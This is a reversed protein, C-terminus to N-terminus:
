VRSPDQLRFDHFFNPWDPRYPEFGHQGNAWAQMYIIGTNHLGILAKKVIMETADLSKARCLNRIETLSVPYGGYGVDRRNAITRELEVIVKQCEIILKQTYRPPM